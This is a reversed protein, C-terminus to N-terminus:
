LLLKTEVVLKKNKQKHKLNGLPSGFTQTSIGFIPIWLGSHRDIAMDLNLDLVLIM